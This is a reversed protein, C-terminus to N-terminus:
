QFVEHFMTMMAVWSRNTAMENYALNDIGRSDAGPDTFSHKTGSYITM